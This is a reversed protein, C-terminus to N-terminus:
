TCSFEDVLAVIVGSPMTRANLMTVVSEPDPHFAADRRRILLMLRCYRTAYLGGPSRDGFAEYVTSFDTDRAM